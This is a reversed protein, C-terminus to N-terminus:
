TTVKVSFSEEIPGDVEATELVDLFNQRDSAMCTITITIPTEEPIPFATTADIVNSM